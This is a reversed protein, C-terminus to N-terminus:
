GRGSLLREAFLSSPLGVLVFGCLLVVLSPRDTIVVQHFLVALGATALAADRITRWGRM